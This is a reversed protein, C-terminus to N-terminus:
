QQMKIFIKHKKGDIVNEPLRGQSQTYDKGDITFKEVQTGSGTSTVDFWTDKIKIESKIQGFGDPVQPRFFWYDETENYGFGAFGRLVSHPFYSFGFLNLTAHRPIGDYDAVDHNLEYNQLSPPLNDIFQSLYNWAVDSLDAEFAAHVMTVWGMGWGHIKAAPAVQNKFCQKFLENKYNFYPIPAAVTWNYGHNGMEGWGSLGMEPRPQSALLVTRGDANQRFCYKKVAQDLQISRQKWLPKEDGVAKSLEWAQKFGVSSICNMLTYEGVAGSEQCDDVILGSQANYKKYRKNEDLYGKGAPDSEWEAYCYDDAALADAVKCIFPWQSKVFEIDGTYRYYKGMNYLYYIMGDLQPGMMQNTWEGPLTIDEVPRQDPSCLKQIVRGSTHYNAHLCNNKENWYAYTSFFQLIKKVEEYRGSDLLMSMAVGSDRTWVVAIQYRNGVIMGGLEADIALKTYMYQDHFTKDLKENGTVVSAGQQYWNQWQKQVEQADVTNKIVQKALQVAADTQKSFSLIVTLCNDKKTCNKSFKVIGFDDGVYFEKPNIVEINTSQNDTAVVTKRYLQNDYDWCLMKENLRVITEKEPLPVDIPWERADECLQYRRAQKYEQPFKFGQYLSMETSIRFDSENGGDSKFEIQRVMVPKDWLGFTRTTVTGPEIRTTIVIVGDFFEYNDCPGVTWTQGTKINTVVPALGIQALQTTSYGLWLRAIKDHVATVPTEPFEFPSVFTGFVHGNGFCLRGDIVAGARKDMQVKDISCLFGPTSPAVIALESPAKKNIISDVTVDATKDYLLFGCVAATKDKADPNPQVAVTICGKEDAIVNCLYGTPTKIADKFCDMTHVIQGNVEIDVIRNGGLSWYSEMLAVFLKYEEGPVAYFRAVIPKSIYTLRDYVPHYLGKDLEFGTGGSLLEGTVQAQLVSTICCSLMTILILKKM